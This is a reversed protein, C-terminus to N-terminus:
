HDILKAVTESLSKAAKRFASQYKPLHLLLGPKRFLTDPINGWATEGSPKVFDTEKLDSLDAEMPDFISRIAVVPIGHAVAQEAVSFTELDVAIAGTALGAEKKESSSYLIKDSSFLRGTRIPGTKNLLGGIKELGRSLDIRVGSLNVVSDCLVVEAVRLDPILGGSIGFHIILDAKEPETKLLSRFTESARHYGIGVQFLQVPKTRLIKKLGVREGKM